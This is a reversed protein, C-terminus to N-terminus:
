NKRKWITPPRGTARLEKKHVKQELECLCFQALCVKQACTKGAAPDWFMWKACMSIHWVSMQRAQRGQRVQGAEGGVMTVPPRGINREVFCTSKAGAQNWSPSWFTCPQYGSSEKPVFLFTGFTFEPSSSRSRANPDVPVLRSGCLHMQLSLCRAPACTPARARCDDPSLLLNANPVVPALRSGCLGAAASPPRLLRFRARRARQWLM